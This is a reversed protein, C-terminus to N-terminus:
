IRIGEIKIFRIDKFSYTSLERYYSDDTHTAVYINKYNYQQVVDVIILSHEFVNGDFSLQIIDGKEVENINSLKGFPGIYNNNVLFNYLYEVGSWSPSKNHGNKYYWGNQSYNM